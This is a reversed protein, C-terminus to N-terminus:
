LHTDLGTASTFTRALDAAHLDHVQGVEKLDVGRQNYFTMSYTDNGDLEIVVKNAKNKAGRPLAFHLGKPTRMFNKAGTMAMFKNGGLQHLVTEAVFAAVLRAAANIKIAM